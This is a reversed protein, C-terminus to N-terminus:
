AYDPLFDPPTQNGEDQIQDLRHSEQWKHADEAMAELAELLSEASIGPLAYRAALLVSGDSPNMMFTPGSFGFMSTNDELLSRFVQERRQQPPFGYVCYVNLMDPDTDADNVIWFYVGNLKLSGSAKVEDSNDIGVLYCLVEILDDYLANNV